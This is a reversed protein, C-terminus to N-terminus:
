QLQKLESTGDAVLQNELTLDQQQRRLRSGRVFDYASFTFLGLGVITLGVLVSVSAKHLKDAIGYHQYKKM